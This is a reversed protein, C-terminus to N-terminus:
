IEFLVQLKYSSSGIETASGSFSKITCKINEFYNTMKSITSQIGLQAQIHKYEATVVFMNTMMDLSQSPQRM